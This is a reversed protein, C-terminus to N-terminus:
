RANATQGAAILHKEPESDHRLGKVMKVGATPALPSILWAGPKRHAPKLAGFNLGSVAHLENM